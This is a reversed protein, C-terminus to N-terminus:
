VSRPEHAPSVSGPNTGRAVKAARSESEDSPDDTRKRKPSTQGSEGTSHSNGETLCGSRAEVVTSHETSTEDMIVAHSDFWPLGALRDDRCFAELKGKLKALSWMEDEPFEEDVVDKASLWWSEDEERKHLM